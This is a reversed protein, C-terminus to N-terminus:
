RLIHTQGQRHLEELSVTHPPMGPPRNALDPVPPRSGTVPGAPLKGDPGLPSPIVAPAGSADRARVGAGKTMTGSGNRDGGAGCGTGVALLAIFLTALRRHERPRSNTSARM